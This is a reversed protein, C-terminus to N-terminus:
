DTFWINLAAAHHHNLILALGVLYENIEDEDVFEPLRNFQIVFLAIRRIYNNLTSQSQGRLTVQQDPKAIVRKFEPVAIIAQEVVTPSTRKKM